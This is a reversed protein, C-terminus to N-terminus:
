MSEMIIRAITVMLAIIPITCSLLASFAISASFFSELGCARTTRAPTSVSIAAFSSTEPSRTRSFAPSRTGASRRSVSATLRFASSLASVPSLRGLSFRASIVQASLVGSPSLCLRSYEVLEMAAPCPAPTTVAVPMSVCTPFIAWIIVFWDAGWVGSCCLSAWVPRQSPIPASTIQRTM